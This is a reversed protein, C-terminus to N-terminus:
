AARRADSLAELATALDSRGALLCIGYFGAGLPVAILEGAAQLAALAPTWEDAIVDYPADPTETFARFCAHCYFRRSPSRSVSTYVSGCWPCRPPSPLRDISRDRVPDRM